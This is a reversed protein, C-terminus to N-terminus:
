AYMRFTDDETISLFGSTITLKEESITYKTYSLPLGLFKTRKREVYVM